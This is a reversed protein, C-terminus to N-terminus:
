PMSPSGPCYVEGDVVPGYPLAIGVDARGTWERQLAEHIDHQAELIAPAPTAGIRRGDVAGLRHM